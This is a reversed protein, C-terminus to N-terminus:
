YTKRLQSVTENKTVEYAHTFTVGLDRHTILFTSPKAYELFLSQCAAITNTDMSETPEDLILLNSRCKNYGEALDRLAFGTCLDVSQREGGSLAGYSRGNCLTVLKNEELACEFEVKEQMVRRLYVRVRESLTRVAKHLVLARLGQFSFGRQWFEIYRLQLKHKSLVNGLEQQQALLPALDGQQSLTNHLVSREYVMDRRQAQLTAIQDECAWLKQCRSLMNDIKVALTAEMRTYTALAEQAEALREPRLNEIMRLGCKPCLPKPISYREVDDEADRRKHQVVSLKGDLDRKEEASGIYPERAKEAKVIAQECISFKQKLATLQQKTQAKVEASQSSLTAISQKLGELKGELRAIVQETDRVRQRVKVECQEFLSGYTLSEIYAKKGQDTLSHFTHFNRQSFYTTTRFLTENMGLTQNILYQVTKVHSDEVVEPIGYGKFVVKNGWQPHKRYRTISYERTNKRFVTRVITPKRPRRVEDARIADPTSGHLCWSLARWLTSKGAGVEGTISVAGQNHLPVDCREWSAFNRLHLSRFEIM